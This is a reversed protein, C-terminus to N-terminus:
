NMYSNAQKVLVKLEQLGFWCLTLLSLVTFLYQSSSRNGSKHTIDECMKLFDVVAAETIACSQARIKNPRWLEARWENGLVRLSHLGICGASILALSWQTRRLEVSRSSWQAASFVLIISIMLPMMKWRGIWLKAAHMVQFHNATCYNAIKIAQTM